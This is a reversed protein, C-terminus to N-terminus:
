SKGFSIDNTLENKDDKQHPFHKKLQEGAMLIGQSLGETYKGQKFNDVM